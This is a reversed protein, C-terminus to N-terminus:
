VIQDYDYKTVNIEKSSDESMFFYCQNIRLVDDSSGRVGVIIVIIM